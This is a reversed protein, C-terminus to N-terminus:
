GQNAIFVDLYEKLELARTRNLDCLRSASVIRWMTGGLNEYFTGSFKLEKDRFEIWNLQSEKLIEKEEKNLLSMLLNYNENLQKDWLEAAVYECNTMGSTTQNSNIEHCNERQIEIPHKAETQGFSFKIVSFVLLTLFYKKM